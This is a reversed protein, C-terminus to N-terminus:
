FTESGVLVLRHGGFCVLVGSVVLLSKLVVWFVGSFGRVVGFGGLVVGSSM